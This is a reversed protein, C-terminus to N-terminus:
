APVRGDRPLVPVDVNVTEPYKLGTGTNLVVVQEHEDIWGSERLRRAAAMCAAGEPCIWVGEATALDRVAALIEEDTVAIATGGSERVGRLVLFDGLAKPVNLGFALTHTGKVLTSEDHGAEFADVIPPCGAAQVAVLRPMAAGIWGLERMEQMAKHIGILGVGGGAPYLIVDPVQWGLQEAIEYGMTKKGEIRYPEKLTSVDQCGPREEVAARVLAGAHNILGDVLYLEAGSVVCERRTIGPADVPMVVLSGLGARAAYVSWAAGANGNTPMAVATVGLERARSVGVAAGRAKFTGTPILGEDKMLLGPVGMAAGYSPLPLMPTMGEGLTTVKASDRVPLLEHYRWLTNARGAIEERSVGARVRDLDYRALLPAGAESVGQVRDADYTEGTRSCELHSLFSFSVSGGRRCVRDFSVADLSARHAARVGTRGRGVDVPERSGTHRLGAAAGAM